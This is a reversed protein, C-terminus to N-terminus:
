ERHHQYDIFDPEPQEFVIVMSRVEGASFTMEVSDYDLVVVMHPHHALQYLEQYIHRAREGREKSESFSIPKV